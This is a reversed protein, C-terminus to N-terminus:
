RSGTAEVCAFCRELEASKGVLECTELNANARPDDKVPM